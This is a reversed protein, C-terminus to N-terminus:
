SRTRRRRNCEPTVTHAEQQRQHAAMLSHTQPFLDPDAKGLRQWHRWVHETLTLTAHHRLYGDVVESDGGDVLAQLMPEVTEPHQQSIAECVTWRDHITARRLADTWDEISLSYGVQEVLQQAWTLQTVEGEFVAQTLLIPSWRQQDETVVGLFLTEFVPRSRTSVHLYEQTMFDTRDRSTLRNLFPLIVPAWTDMVDGIILHRQLLTVAALPTVKVATEEAWAIMQASPKTQHQNLQHVRQMYSEHLVLYGCRELMQQRGMMSFALSDDMVLYLGVTPATVLIESFAAWDQRQDARKLRQKWEPIAVDSM